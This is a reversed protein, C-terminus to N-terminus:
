GKWWGFIFGAVTGLTSWGVLPPFSIFFICIWLVFAVLWSKEWKEAVPGLWIFLKGTLVMLGIGLAALGLSAAYFGIKQWLTLQEYRDNAMRYLKKAKEIM